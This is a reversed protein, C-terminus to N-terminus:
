APEGGTPRALLCTERDERMVVVTGDEFSAVAAVEPDIEGVVEYIDTM